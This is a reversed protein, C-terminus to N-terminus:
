FKVRAKDITVGVTILYKEDFISKVYRRVLSTKGVGYAGLMCIKKQIM